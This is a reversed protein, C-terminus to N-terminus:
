LSLKEDNKGIKFIYPEKLSGEKTPKMEVKKEAEKDCRRADKLFTYPIGTADIGRFALTNESNRELHCYRVLRYTEIPIELREMLRKIVDDCLANIKISALDDLPTKQLNVIVLNHKRGVEAPVDNAPSVTLSSGM